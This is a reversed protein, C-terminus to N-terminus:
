DVSQSYGERPTMRSATFPSWVLPSKSTPATPKGLGEKVVGECTLSGPPTQGPPDATTCPYVRVRVVEWSM